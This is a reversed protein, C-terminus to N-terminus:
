SSWWEQCEMMLFFIGIFSVETKGSKFKDIPENYPIDL